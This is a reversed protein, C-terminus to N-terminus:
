ESEGNSMEDFPSPSGKAARKARTWGYRVALRVDPWTRGTALAHWDTELCRELSGNWEDQHYTASLACGYGFRIAAEDSWVDPQNAVHRTPIPEVSVAQAITNGVNQNLDAAWKLGLDHKTQEWDRRLAEKIPAWELSRAVTSWEAELAARAREVAVRLDQWAHDARAGKRADVWKDDPATAVDHLKANAVSLWGTQPQSPRM